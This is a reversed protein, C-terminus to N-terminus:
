SIATIEPLMNCISIFLGFHELVEAQVSLRGKSPVQESQDLISWERDSELSLPRDIKRQEKVVHCDAHWFCDNFLITEYATM